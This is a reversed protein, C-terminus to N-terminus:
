EIAADGFGNQCRDFTTDYRIVRNHQCLTGGDINGLIGTGPTLGSASVHNGVVAADSQVYIGVAQGSGGPALNRVRNDSVQGGAGISQIGFASMDAGAGFLGDVVNDVIDGAAIIGWGFIVGTGGGTDMVLNRLVENGSGEARIGTYLNQDLRNDVVSHGGGNAGQLRIGTMFGRIACDRVTINLRDNAVIGDAQSGAGAALGGIKFGNCDLTVNNANVTIAAGSAIATSLDHKLCYTGQSGIAIPLTDVETCQTTEARAMGIAGFVLLLFLFAANM